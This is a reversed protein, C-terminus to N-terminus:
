LYLPDDATNGPVAATALPMGLPDLVAAALKLHPRDPHDKSHGFQLLGQESLVDAYSSATTADIRVLDTPLWYVRVAQRNLERELAAFTDGAGLRSLWDALRDDHCHAPLVA